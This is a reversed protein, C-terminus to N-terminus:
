GVNVKRLESMLESQKIEKQEGSEMDKLTVVGKKLEDEGIILAFKAALDNAKRLAGKLSRNEYDMDASIGSHRLKSLLKVAEKKAEEGLPIIYALGKSSVQCKLSSVLLLRELGLAFGIAGSSSGGLEQVLNDYRGGAGLADQSGLDPHSIEFVTGTYYDLGRVLHPSLQYKVGIEDLGEKVRAFHAACDTCLHGQACSLDKVAEICAPNKCDLIRLINQKFRLKCDACLKPLRAKLEKRLSDAFAQRDKACGLSNLKLTHGSVGLAKLLADALSIIEIDVQPQSSGIVECGIHHFQRLRGKQPREARFMPGLYYFKVLGGTKDLNNELYARVVSATGEPRLAYLDRGHKVLFMQKQVIEAAAGLTRNFLAAEEILPLRIEAYNYVGFVARATNEIEQWVLAETPLIDKTGPVRKSSM